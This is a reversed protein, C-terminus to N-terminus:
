VSGCVGKIKKVVNSIQSKSLSYYIPMSVEMSYFAEACPYNKKNFNYKKMFSLKYVPIYHTQLFIGAKAMKKFFDKKTIGTKKFDILVPYLHYAHLIDKSVYPVKLYSLNSLSKNYFDAIKRRKKLFNELKELQSIGLASQIDTMRFNFGFNKVDYHWPGIQKIMSTSRIIGHNRLLNIKKYLEFNNTLVSGGEGTTINKVPHYSQTVLDAFKVAYGIDNKIEAGIAHCNDNILFLGYKKKLFNLEKWNNPYGAYDVAIIAKIKKDKKLKYELKDLDINYTNLEIDSFDPVLNNMLATYVSSFFTIPSCIVKCNKKLNLSKISLYLAATGSNVINCYKAKFKKKLKKEFNLVYQGQTIKESKSANKILDIDKSDIYQKGYFIKM